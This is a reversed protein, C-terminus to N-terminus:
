PMPVMWFDRPSRLYRSWGLGQGAPPCNGQWRAEPCFPPLPVGSVPGNCDTPGALGQPPYFYPGCSRNCGCFQPYRPPVPFDARASPATAGALACAVLALSATFRM